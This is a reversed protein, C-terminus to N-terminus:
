PTMWRRPRSASRTTEPRSSKYETPLNSGPLLDNPGGPAYGTAVRGYLMTGPVVHWRADTSWTTSHDSSPTIFNTVGALEGSSAQSYTQRNSSYRGGAAVDFM